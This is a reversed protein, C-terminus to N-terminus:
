ADDVGSPEDVAHHPGVPGHTPCVGAIPTENLRCAHQPERGRRSHLPEGANAPAAM